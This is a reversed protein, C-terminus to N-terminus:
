VSVTIQQERIKNNANTIKSLNRNIESFDNITKIVIKKIPINFASKLFLSDSKKDEKAGACSM